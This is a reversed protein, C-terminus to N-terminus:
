EAVSQVAGPYATSEALALAIRALMFALVSRAVSHFMAAISWLAIAIAMGWRTGIKDLLRGVLLLGIGYSFQFASVVNGYDTESWGLEDEIMPKLVGLVQRDVYNITIVMFLLACIAWRYRGGTKLIVSTATTDTMRHHVGGAQAVGLQQGSGRHSARARGGSTDRSEM